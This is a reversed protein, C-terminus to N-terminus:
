TILKIRNVKESLKDLQYDIKDLKNTINGILKQVVKSELGADKYNVNPRLIHFLLCYECLYRYLPDGTNSININHLDIPNDRNNPTTCIFCKSRDRGLRCCDKKWKWVKGEITIFHNFCNNINPYEKIRKLNKSFRLDSRYRSHNQLVHDVIKFKSSM